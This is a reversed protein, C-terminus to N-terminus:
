REPGGRDASRRPPLMRTLHSHAEPSKIAIISDGVGLTSVREPDIRLRQVQRATTRDAGARRGVNGSADQQYSYEWATYTGAMQAVMRASEPVDQRHAVKIATNGVVQERFGRAARDLDALEQTALMVGVGAERGKSLLALLNASELASFEDIGVLALPQKAAGGQDLRRGAAATLDQVIMTGLQAALGGYSSSNLSFLVVEDGAMATRVNIADDGPELRPGVHSETIIALRSGLGRIASLQDSGLDDIYSTIHLRQEPDLARAATRLQRPELLEVLRSMSAPRDPETEQMVRLAIQLYREAARRYHPETFRESAILKDKLETANGTALPNWNTDGDISWMRFPRGAAQAAARLQEALEPSGKLDLAVVPAGQEIRSCLVNTLTTTKGSGTAGLILGHAGLEREGVIVRRGHGDTGLLVDGQALRRREDAIQHQQQARARTWRVAALAVRGLLLAGVVLPAVSGPLALLGVAVALWLRRHRRHRPVRPPPPRWPEPWQDELHATM